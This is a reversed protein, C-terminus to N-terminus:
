SRECRDAFARLRAAFRDADALHVLHGRGAWEEVEVNPVLRRLYDREERTLRQGFVALSPVEAIGLRELLGNVQDAVEKLDCPPGPSAGHALLDITQQPTATM